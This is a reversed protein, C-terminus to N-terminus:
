ERLAGLRDVTLAAFAVEVHLRRCWGRWDYAHGATSLTRRPHRGRVPRVAAPRERARGVDCRAPQASASTVTRRPALTEIPKDMEIACSVPAGHAASSCCRVRRLTTTPLSCRDAQLQQTRAQSRGPGNPQPPSLDANVQNVVVPRPLRRFGNPLAGLRHGRARLSSSAILVEVTLEGSASTSVAEHTARPRWSRSSPLPISGFDAMVHPASARIHQEQEDITDTRQIVQGPGHRSPQRCSGPSTQPNLPRRAASPPTPERRRVPDPSRGPATLQGSRRSFGRSRDDTSQLQPSWARRGSASIRRRASAGPGDRCTTAKSRDFRPASSAQLPM